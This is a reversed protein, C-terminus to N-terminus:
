PRISRKNVCAPRIVGQGPRRGGAAIVAIVVVDVRECAEAIPHGAVEATVHRTNM